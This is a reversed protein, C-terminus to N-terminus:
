RRLALLVDSGGQTKETVTNENVWWARRGLVISILFLNTCLVGGIMAAAWAVLREAVTTASYCSMGVGTQVLTLEFISEASSHLLSQYTFAHDSPLSAYRAVVFLLGWLQTLNVIESFIGLLTEHAAKQQGLAMMSTVINYGNIALAVLANIVSVVVKATFSDKAADVILGLLVWTFFVAALAGVDWALERQRADM